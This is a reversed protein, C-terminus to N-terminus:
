IGILGVGVLFGKPRLEAKQGGGGGGGEVVSLKMLSKM